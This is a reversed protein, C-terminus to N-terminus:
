LWRLNVKFGLINKEAPHNFRWVDVMDTEEMWLKIVHRTELNAQDHSGYRDVEPDLICNFDGGIIVQDNETIELESVLQIYFQPHDQNPGYINVLNIRKNGLTVDLILYRGEKDPKCKHVVYEVNNKFLVAVGRSNKEGHSFYTTGGWEAKWIKEDEM